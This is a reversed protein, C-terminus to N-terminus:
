CSSAEHLDVQCFSLLLLVNGVHPWLALKSLSNLSIKCLKQEAFANTFKNFTRRKKCKQSCSVFPIKM